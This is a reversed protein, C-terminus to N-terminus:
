GTQGVNASIVRDSKLINEMEALIPLRFESFDSNKLPERPTIMLVWPIWFKVSIARDSINKLIFSM